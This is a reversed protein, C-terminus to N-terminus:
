TLFVVISLTKVSLDNGHQDQGRHQHVGRAPRRRLRGPRPRVTGPRRGGEAAGPLAGGADAGAAAVFIFCFFFLGLSSPSEVVVAVAVVVAVVILLRPRGPANPFPRRATPPRGNKSRRGPRAALRLPRAAM